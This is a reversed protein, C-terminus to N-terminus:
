VSIPTGAQLCAQKLLFRLRIGAFAAVVIGRRGLEAVVLSEGIQETLQTRFNRAILAGREAGLWNLANIRGNWSILGM